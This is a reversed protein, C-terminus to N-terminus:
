RSSVVHPLTTPSSRSSERSDADPQMVAPRQKMRRKLALDLKADQRYVDDAFHVSDHVPVAVATTYFLVVRAPQSLAVHHSWSTEALETIRDRSWLTPDNLAWEALAVPDEVRVCGHSFDRRTENFLASAPTGHLYIDEANPFVFKLLGLANAPGPRQRIRLGGSQVLNLNERTTPVARADDGVGDVIEMNERELYGPDRAVAPLIEKRAISPPVNWYPAFVISDLQGIVVPTETTLARGVIVKMSLTPVVIDAPSNWTWLRFMPIVIAVLRQDAVRPLWRLREMALEIQRVRWSLPIEIARRTAKGLIGDETLGYRKQFHKIGEALTEDYTSFSPAPADADLDGEAVLRHYLVRAGSYAQGIKISQAATYPLPEQLDPNSALRRYVSLARRLGRYQELPPAVQLPLESVSNRAIAERLVVVVDLDNAASRMPFDQTRPDVRGISLDRLYLLIAGSLSVDFAAITDPSRHSSEAFQLSRDPLEAIYDSSSLGEDAASELVALAAHANATPRGSADSWIAARGDGYLTRLDACLAPPWSARAAELSREFAVTLDSSFDQLLMSASVRATQAGLLILGALAVRQVLQFAM